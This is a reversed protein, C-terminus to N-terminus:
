EIIKLDGAETAKLQGGETIKADEPTYPVPDYIRAYIRMDSDTPIKSNDVLITGTYVGASPNEIVVKNSTDISKFWSDADLEWKSSARRVNEIGDIEKRGIWFVIHVDAVDPLDGDIKEFSAVIKTLDYGLILKDTGNLLEEDALTYAKITENEWEPNSLFDYSSFNEDFFQELEEGNKEIVIRMRQYIGWGTVETYRHWFHNVGNLPEATDFIGAPLNSLFGLSVWYEWRHMFPYILQWNKITGTDLDQRSLLKITKRIEDEPIKFVRDQEVNFYPFLGSQLPSSSLDFSFKELEIDLEGPKKLVIGAEIKKILIPNGEAYDMSFVTTAAVDDTPFVNLFDQADGEDEGTHIVFGTQASVINTDDLDEFLSNIDLIINAKDSTARTLSSTETTIWLFYRMGESQSMVQKALSGLSFNLKCKIETASIFTTKIGTIVQLNTGFNDGTAPLAVGMLCSARDFVFNTKFDRGNNQYETEDEPCYCITAVVRTNANHFASPAICNITFDFQTEADIQIAPLPENDSVRKRTLGAISFRNIGGNYSEGEWGTNGLVDDVVKFQAPNPNSLSRNCEIKFALKLCAGGQYYDPAVLDLLDQLQSALFTPTVVTDHVIEFRQINDTFSVGRIIAGGYQYGKQGNFIMTKDAPSAPDAENTELLQIEGDIKSVFDTADTNGIFNHFYRIGSFKNGLIVYADTPLVESVAFGASLRIINDAIKETIILSVNNGPTPAGIVRALDGVQFEAFALPDDAYIVGINDTTGILSIPPQLYISNGESSIAVTEVKFKISISIREGMMALLYEVWESPRFVDGIKVSEITIM